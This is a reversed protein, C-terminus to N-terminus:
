DVKVTHWRISLYEVPDLDKVRASVGAFVTAHFAVLTGSNARLYEQAEIYRAKRKDFDLERRAADLMADFKPDAFRSENWRTGSRFVENMIADAPRDNWRTMVADKKIWVNSWYGDSPVQTIKVRIGAPAVQQQFAEAIAPWVAEITAVHLEIDIGNPYGAAALLSKAKAIDQPCDKAVDHQVRYQDAPGVPTDCGLEGGGSAALELMAKRDVAAKIAQRVRVDDFPKAQTNFVIGRWNGTRIVQVKHRNSRELLVRQQQTVSPVMDIQGGLLAQLRAQADPIGIVEVRAVGPKGGFYDPNAVLVTTGQPDLKELKFPGTGIGTTAITAGSDKPIIRLRYDTLILPLDAFPETLTMKVTSADVAEITKIMSITARAPSGTKEDQVRQLSYVVDDASFSAGNHFKVGTRLKFTWETAAANSSWSLALDPSPKGNLDQRVVRSMLKDTIEFVRGRSAPDVDSASGSGVAHSMRFVGSQAWAQNAALIAGAMLLSKVVLRTM